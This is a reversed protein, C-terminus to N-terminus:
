QIIHELIRLDLIDCGRVDIAARADPWVFVYMLVLVRVYGLVYIM